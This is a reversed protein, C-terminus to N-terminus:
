AKGFSSLKGIPPTHRRELPPSHKELHPSIKKSAELNKLKM